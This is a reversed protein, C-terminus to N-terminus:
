IIDENMKPWWFNRRILEKMKDEGMHGAVKSDHESELIRTRIGCPVWLRPRYYLVGEEQSLTDHSNEENKELSKMAEKYDEDKLAEEKVEELFNKDWNVWRKYPLKTATILVNEETYDIQTDPSKTQTEFDKKQLVTQIPQEESGGKPPRYESCRSLADPKGNQSGPRYCIKFDIGALEQAWHAQRRNLVKTTTFYELNQHDTYVLVKLLAGELYRQWIKFSHVIALLEKDHIEYNIEPPSFKRSHYAIPHLM